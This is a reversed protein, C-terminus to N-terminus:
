SQNDKLTGNTHMIAILEDIRNRRYLNHLLDRVKSKKSNPSLQEWDIGLAVATKQLEELDYYALLYHRLITPPSDLSIKELRPLTDPAPPTLIREVALALQGTQGRQATLEMINIILQDMEQQLTMVENDQINLDFLLDLVDERGLRDRIEEYIMQRDFATGSEDSGSSFQVGNTSTHTPTPSSVATEESTQEVLQFPKLLMFLWYAAGGGLLGVIIYYFFGFQALLDDRNFTGLITDLLLASLVALLGVGWTLSPRRWFMFLFIAVVIFKIIVLILM